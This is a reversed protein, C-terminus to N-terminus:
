KKADKALERQEAALGRADEAAMQLEKSLKDCHEYTGPSGPRKSLAREPHRQYFAALESHLKAGFEYSGAQQDYYDAAFEHDAKTKPNTIRDKVEQASLSREYTPSKQAGAPVSAFVALVAVATTLLAARTSILHKLM